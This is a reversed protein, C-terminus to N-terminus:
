SHDIRIDKSIWISFGERCENQRRGEAQKRCRYLGGLVGSWLELDVVMAPYSSDDILRSDKRENHFPITWGGISHLLKLCKLGTKWYQREEVSVSTGSGSCLTPFPYVVQLGCFPFEEPLRYHLDIRM